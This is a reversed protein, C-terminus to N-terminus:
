LSLSHSLTFSTPCTSLPVVSPRVSESCVYVRFFTPENMPVAECLGISISDELQAGKFLLSMSLTQMNLTIWLRRSTAKHDRKSNVVNLWGNKIVLAQELEYEILAEEEDLLLESRISARRSSHRPGSRLTRDISEQMCHMWRLKDVESSAVLIFSKLPSFFYFASSFLIHSPVRWKTLLYLLCFESTRSPV